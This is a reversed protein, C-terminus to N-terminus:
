QYIDIDMNEEDEDRFRSAVLTAKEMEFAMQWDSSAEFLNLLENKCDQCIVDDTLNKKCRKCTLKKTTKKMQWSIHQYDRIRGSNVRPQM